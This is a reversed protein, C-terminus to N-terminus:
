AAKALAPKFMQEMEQRIKWAQTRTDMQVDAWTLSQGQAVPRIVKV